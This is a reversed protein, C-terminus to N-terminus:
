LKMIASIEDGEEYYGPENLETFGFSCYFNKAAENSPEYSLVCYEAEGCPFTRIFDTALKLAEKGYGRRQFRKDIMFRWIYYYPKGQYFQYAESNLWAEREYGSWDTYYSIMIFGVLTKGNYIGFPFVPKGEALSLYADILSWNNSAVYNRQEKSVRLKVIADVNDYSVKELHINPERM